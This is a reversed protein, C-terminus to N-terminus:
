AAEAIELIARPDAERRRPITQGQQEAGVIAAEELREMELRKASIEAFRQERQEDTLVGKQPAQEILATVREVMMDRLLWCWFAAGADGHLRTAEGIQVAAVGTQDGLHIPDGGRSTAYVTPKGRDAMADISAVARAVLDVVPAPAVEAAQWADDLKALEGRIRDVEAAYGGKPAKPAPVTFHRFSAGPGARELWAAANELFAYKEWNEVARQHAAVAADLRRRAAEVPALLRAAEADREAERAREAMIVAAPHLDISYGRPAGLRQRASADALGHERRAEQLADSAARVAAHAADRDSDLREVKTRSEAPLRSLMEDTFVPM